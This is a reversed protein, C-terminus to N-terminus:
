KLLYSAWYYTVKIAKSKSQELAVKPMNKLRQIGTKSTPSKIDRVPRLHRIIRIKM